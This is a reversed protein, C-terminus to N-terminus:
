WGSGCGSGALCLRRRSKGNQGTPFGNRVQNPRLCASAKVTAVLRFCNRGVRWGQPPSGMTRAISAASIPSRRGHGRHTNACLTHKQEM